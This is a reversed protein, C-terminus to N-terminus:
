LREQKVTMPKIEIQNRYKDMRHEHHYSYVADSTVILHDILNVGHIAMLSFLQETADDDDCTPEPNGSLHNHAVAVFKPSYDIIGKVIETFNIDVSHTTHDTFIKKGLVRTKADLYFVVFAEDRIARFMKILPGKMEAYTKFYPLPNNERSVRRFAEGLAGLFAAASEGVGKVHELAQPSANLVRGLSGFETILEHAIENTNVRPLAYFLLIELIEHDELAEPDNLLKKRMRERHKEHM